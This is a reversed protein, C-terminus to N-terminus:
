ILTSQVDKKGNTSAKLDAPKNQLKVEEAEDVIKIYTLVKQMYQAETCENYSQYSTRLLHDLLPYKDKYAQRLTGLPTKDKQDPLWYRITGDSNLDAKDIKKLLMLTSILNSHKFIADKIEKNVKFLQGIISTPKVLKELKLMHESKSRSDLCWNSALMMEKLDDISINGLEKKVQLDIANDLRIWHKKLKKARTQTFGYIEVGLFEKLRKFLNPDSVELIGAHYKRNIYDVEIYVGGKDELNLLECVMSDRGTIIKYANVHTPALNANKKTKKPKKPFTISSITPFNFFKILEVDYTPIGHKKEEYAATTPKSPTSIICIHKSTPHISFLHEIYHKDLEENTIDNIYATFNPKQWEFLYTYNAESYRDRTINGSPQKNFCTAKTWLGFNKATPNPIIIRDKWKIDKLAAELGYYSQAMEKKIKNSSHIAEIYTPALAIKNEIISTIETSVKLLRKKLMIKTKDDYQLLDRSAGFSLDGINFDLRLNFSLLNALKSDTLDKFLSTKDIEYAIGDAIALPHANTRYNNLTSEVVRWDDGSFVIEEKEYQPPSANGTLIPKVKWHQTSNVTHKAFENVHERKIPISITTGNPKNTKTESVLTLKGIKTEDIYAHYIRETFDTTTTITFVDSYSFASKSGLGFAGTQTNDERKTSSAYGLFINSMRDPSIGPGHDTIQYTLDFSTPLHIEIPTNPTNVERHADRANCSYERCIAAIPNTYLKNRLIDFVIALDGIKFQQENIINSTETFINSNPLKM